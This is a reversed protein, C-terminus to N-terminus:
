PSTAGRGVRIHGHLLASFRTAHDPTALGYPEPARAFLSQVIRGPSDLYGVSQIVRQIQRFILTDVFAPQVFIAGRDQVVGALFLVFAVVKAVYAVM